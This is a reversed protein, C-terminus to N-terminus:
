ESFVGFAFDTPVVKWAPRYFGSRDALSIRPRRDAAHLAQVSPPRLGRGHPRRPAESEKRRRDLFRSRDVGGRAADVPHPRPIGLLLRSTGHGWRLALRLAGARLPRDLFPFHRRPSSTMRNKHIALSYLRGMKYMLPVGSMPGTGPPSGLLCRLCVEPFLGKWASPHIRYPLPGVLPQVKKRHLKQGRDGSRFAAV